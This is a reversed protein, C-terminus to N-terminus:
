GPAPGAPPWRPPWGPRGAASWWSTATSTADRRLPGPRSPRGAPGQRGARSGGPRRVARRPPPCCRSPFPARGARPREAGRRRGVVIGRPRGLTSVAHAVRRVGNALLASALTDGAFGTYSSATSAHVTLPRTATSGASGTSPPEADVRSRTPRPTASPTSGAGAAPRTCGASPSRARRTTGSSCTSAGVREDSLTAPDAPYAVHAQGGYHFETEDRPGCWPCTILLM